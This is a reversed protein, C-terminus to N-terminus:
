NRTSYRPKSKAWGACGKRAPFIDMPSVKSSKHSLTCNSAWKFFSRFLYKLWTDHLMKICKFMILCECIYSNKDANDFKLLGRVPKFNRAIRVHDVTTSRFIAVCPRLSHEPMFSICRHKTAVHSPQSCQRLNNWTVQYLPTHPKRHRTSCIPTVFCDNLALSSRCILCICFIMSLPTNQTLHLRILPDLSISICCCCDIKHVASHRQQISPQRLCLSQLTRHV